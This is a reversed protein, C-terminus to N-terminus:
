AALVHEYDQDVVENPTGNDNLSLRAASSLPPDVRTRAMLVFVWAVVIAAVIPTGLLVM